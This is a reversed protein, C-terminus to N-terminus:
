CIIGNFTAMLFLDDKFVTYMYWISSTDPEPKSQGDSVKGSTEETVLLSNQSLLKFYMMVMKEGTRELEIDTVHDRRM